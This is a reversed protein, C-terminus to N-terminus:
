DASSPDCSKRCHGSMESGAQRPLAAFFLASVAGLLGVTLFAPPFDGAVLSEGGRWALSTQLVVAAISVGLSQALPQAMSTISTASSMAEPEVEAFSLATISTYQLSRFFGWALLVVLILNVPTQPTFAACGALFAACILGNGM